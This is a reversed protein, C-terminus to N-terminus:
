SLSAATEPRLDSQEESRKKAFNVTLNRGRYQVGDLRTIVVPAIKEEVEVFSYNDLIKIDGIDSKSVEGASTLLQVLDRPYVRRNKGISLFLTTTSMKRRIRGQSAVQRLLYAALYSRMFLPVLKQFAKRYAGLEAPDEDERLRRQLEDVVIKLSPLDLELSEKSSVVM